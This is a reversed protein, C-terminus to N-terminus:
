GFRRSAVEFKNIPYWNIIDPKRQEIISKKVDKKIKPYFLVGDVIFSTAVAEFVTDGSENVTSVVVFM